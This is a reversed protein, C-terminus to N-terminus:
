PSRAEYAPRSRLPRLRTGVEREQDQLEDAEIEIEDVDADASKGHIRVCECELEAHAERRRQNDKALLREGPYRAMMKVASQHVPERAPKPVM